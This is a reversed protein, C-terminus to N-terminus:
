TTPGAQLAPARRAVPLAPPRPRVSYLLAVVGATALAAPAARRVLARATM